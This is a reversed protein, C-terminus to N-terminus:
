RPRSAKLAAAGAVHRRTLWLVLPPIVVWQVVPSVGVDLGPVLPMADGYRWRELPGTALLEFVVTLVLGVALYISWTVRTPNFLWRRDRLWAAATWYAGLMMAVDGLTAKFCTFTAHAHAANAMGEYLSVQALEWAFHLLFAFFALMLEPAQAEWGDLRLRARHTPAHRQNTAASKVM